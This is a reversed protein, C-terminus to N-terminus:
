DIAFSVSVDGEPGRGFVEIIAPGEVSTTLEWGGDVPDVTVDGTVETYTTDYTQASFTFDAGFRLIVPGDGSVLPPQAPPAGDACIGVDFEAPTWCYTWADLAVSEGGRTVM